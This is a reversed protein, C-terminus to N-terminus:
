ELGLIRSALCNTFCKEVIASYGPRQLRDSRKIAECLEEPTIIEPPIFNNYSGMFEPGEEGVLGYRKAWDCRLIDLKGWEFIRGDVEISLSEEKSIAMVPCSDVCKFCRKCLPPGSYVSNYDLVADTILVAFRQRPGFEPTLVLGNWGIEGLGAAVAAFRSATLDVSGGYVKSALNFLDFTPFSKYGCEELLKAIKLLIYSLQNLSEGHIFAMYHGAKYAPPKGAYEICADLLHIGIVIVSKAGPLYDEPKKPVLKVRRVEPNFPMAQSGWITRGKTGWGKDEVIFYDQDTQSIKELQSAIDNLREVPSVGFLDAGEAIALSKIKETLLNKSYIKKM